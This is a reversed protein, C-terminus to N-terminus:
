KQTYVLGKAFIVMPYRVFQVSQSYAKSYCTENCVDEFELMFVSDPLIVLFM